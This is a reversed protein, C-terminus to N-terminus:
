RSSENCMNHVRNGTLVQVLYQFHAVKHVSFNVRIQIDDLPICVKGQAKMVCTTIIIYETVLIINSYYILISSVVSFDTYWGCTHM